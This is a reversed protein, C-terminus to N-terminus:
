SFLSFYNKPNCTVSGTKYIVFPLPSLQKRRDSTGLRIFRSSLLLSPKVFSFVTFFFHLNKFKCMVQRPCLAWRPSPTLKHSPLLSRQCRIQAELNTQRIHRNRLDNDTQRDQRDLRWDLAPHRLKRAPLKEILPLRMM